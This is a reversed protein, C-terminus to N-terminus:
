AKSSDDGTRYSIGEVTAGCSTTKTSVVSTSHRQGGSRQRSSLKRFARRAPPSFMFFIVPNVIHNLFLFLTSLVVFLPFWQGPTVNGLLVCFNVIQTIIMPLVSIVYIIVILTVMISMRRTSKTMNQALSKKLVRIKVIHLVGIIVLPTITVVTAWIAESIYSKPNQGGSMCQFFKHRGYLAAIACNLAWNVVTMSAIRRIPHSALKLSKLPYVVLFFRLM